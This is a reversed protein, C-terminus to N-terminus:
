ADPSPCCFRNALFQFGQSPSVLDQTDRMQRLDSRKGIVMVQNFLSFSGAAGPGRNTGQISILASFFDGSHETAGPQSFSGALVGLLEELRIRLKNPSFGPNRGPYM